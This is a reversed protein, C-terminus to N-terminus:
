SYRTIIKNVKAMAIKYGRVWFGTFILVKNKGGFDFNPLGSDTILCM